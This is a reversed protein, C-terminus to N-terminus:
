LPLELKPQLPTESTCKCKRYLSWLSAHKRIGVLHGMRLPCKIMWNARNDDDYVLTVTGCAPVCVCVSDRYVGKVDRGIRYTKRKGSPNLVSVGLPPIKM